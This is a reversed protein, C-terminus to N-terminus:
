GPPPVLRAARERTADDALAARLVADAALLEARDVRACLECNLAEIVAIVATAYHEGSATLVVNLKRADDRDRETRAYGRRELQEFGKRAAQRTIGLVDAARGIAIPGRHLLRMAAADSRRYGTFGLADLRHEMQGVWSARALALLDGFRYRPDTSKAAV